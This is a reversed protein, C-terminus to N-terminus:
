WMRRWQTQSSGCLKCKQLQDQVRTVKLVHGMRVCEYRGRPALDGEGYPREPLLYSHATQSDSATLCRAIVEFNDMHRDFRKVSQVSTALYAAVNRQKPPMTGIVKLVEQHAKGSDHAVGNRLRRAEELQGKEADARSLRDFPLGDELVRSSLAQVNQKWPLWTIYDRGGTLVREADQRNKFTVRPQVDDIGSVGLLARFFLDEVFSEFAAYSAIFSAEVITRFGRQTLQANARLREAESFAYRQRRINSQLSRFSKEASV